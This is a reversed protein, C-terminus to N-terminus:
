LIQIFQKRACCQSFLITLCEILMILQMVFSNERRRKDERPISNFNLTYDDDDSHM